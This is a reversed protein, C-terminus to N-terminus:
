RGNRRRRWPGFNTRHFGAQLLSATLLMDVADDYEHAFRDAHKLAVQFARLAQRDAHRQAQRRAQEEEACRGRPGSGCYVKRVRGDALRKSRYYYKGPLWGSRRPLAL